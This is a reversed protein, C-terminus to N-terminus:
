AAQKKAPGLLNEAVEVWQRGDIPKTLVLKAYAAAPGLAERAEAQTLATCVVLKTDPLIVQLAGVLAAGNVGSMQIDTFVLHCDDTVAKRIGEVADTSLSVEYGAEQLSRVASKGEAPDDEVVLVRPRQHEFPRITGHGVWVNLPHGCVTLAQGVWRTQQAGHLGVVHDAEVPETRHLQPLSITVSYGAQALMMKIAGALVNAIEGFGDIVDEPPLDEDGLMEGILGRSAPHSAEILAMGEIRGSFSVHATLGSARLSGTQTLEATFSPPEGLLPTLADGIADRIAHNTFVTDSM